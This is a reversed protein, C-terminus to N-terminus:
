MIFFFNWVMNGVNSGGFDPFHTKLYFHNGSKPPGFTPFITQFNKKMIYYALKVHKGILFKKWIKGGEQVKNLLGFLYEVKHAGELPVLGFHWKLSGRLLAFNEHFGSESYSKKFIKILLTSVLLNAWKPAGFGGSLPLVGIKKNKLNKKIIKSLHRLM